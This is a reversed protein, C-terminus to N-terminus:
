CQVGYLAWVLRRWTGGLVDPDRTEVPSVVHGAGQVYYTEDISALRSTM